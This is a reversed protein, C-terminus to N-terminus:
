VCDGSCKCEVTSCTEDILTDWFLCHDGRYDSVVSTNTASRIVLRERRASSYPPWTLTSVTGTTVFDAWVTSLVKMLAKDEKTVQVGPSPLTGLVFPLEASHYAGLLPHSYSSWSPTYAFLYSYVTAGVSALGTAATADPCGFFGDSLVACWAQGPEPSPYALEDYTAGVEGSLPGFAALLDATYDLTTMSWDVWISGARENYGALVPVTSPLSSSAGYYIPRPQATVLTGDITPAWITGAPQSANLLPLARLLKPLPVGQMCTLDATPCGVALGLEVAHAEAAIASGILNINACPGSEIIARHFFPRFAPSTLALCVSIGGASEGALTVQNPDGGFGGIHQSVWQLAALQDQLGANAGSPGVAAFGLPGLRYQVIVRIYAPDVAIVPEQYLPQSIAGAVFGGGIMFVMVPLATADAPATRVSPPLHVSLFLCDESQNTFPGFPLAPIFPTSHDLQPCAAANLPESVLHAGDLYPAFSTSSPSTRVPASTLTPAGFRPATAYRIPEVALLPGARRVRLFDRDAAAISVLTLLLLTLM